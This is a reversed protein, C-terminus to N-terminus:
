SAPRPHPPVPVDAAQQAAAWRIARAYFESVHPLMDHRTPEDQLMLFTLDMMMAHYVLSALTREQCGRMYRLFPDPRLIELGIDVDILDKTVFLITCSPAYRFRKFTRGYGAALVRLAPTENVVVHEYTPGVPSERAPRAARRVMPIVNM